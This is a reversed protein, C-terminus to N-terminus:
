GWVKKIQEQIKEIDYTPKEFEEVEGLPWYKNIDIKEPSQIQLLLYTQSRILIEIAKFRERERKEFYLLKLFFDSVSMTEFEEGTIM